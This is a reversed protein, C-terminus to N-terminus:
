NRPQQKKLVVDFPISDGPVRVQMNTGSMWVEKCEPPEKGNDLCLMGDRTSWKGTPKKGMSYSVYTGDRNLLDAWHVEDTIEMGAVKARIERESLKRFSDAASASAVSLGLISLTAMAARASRRAVATPGKLNVTDSTM